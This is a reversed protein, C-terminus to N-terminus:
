VWIDTFLALVYPLKTVIYFEGRPLGSDRIARGVEQENAPLRPLSNRDTIMM